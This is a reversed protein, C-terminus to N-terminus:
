FQKCLLSANDSLVIRVLYEINIAKHWVLSVMTFYQWTSLEIRALFSMFEDINVLQSVIM